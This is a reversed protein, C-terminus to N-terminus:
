KEFEVVPGNLFRTATCVGLDNVKCREKQERYGLVFKFVFGMLAGMSKSERDTFEFDVAPNMNRRYIVLLSRVPPIGMDNAFAICSMAIPDAITDMCFDWLPGSGVFPAAYRYTRAFDEGIARIIENTKMNTDEKVWMKKHTINVLVTFLTIM